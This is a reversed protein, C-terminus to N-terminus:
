SNQRNKNGAAFGIRHGTMNFTKSCSHFEITIEKTDEIELISPATYCNYTIESVEGEPDVDVGFRNKYWEAMAQRFEPNGEAQRTPTTQQTELPKNSLRFYKKTNYNPNPTEAQQDAEHGVGM